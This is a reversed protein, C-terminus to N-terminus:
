RRKKIVVAAAAAAIIVVAGIAVPIIIKAKGGSETKDSETVPDTGTM